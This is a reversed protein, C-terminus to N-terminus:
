RYNVKSNSYIECSKSRKIYEIVRIDKSQNIRKRQTVSVILGFTVVYMMDLIHEYILINMFVVGKRGNEDCCYIEVHFILDCAVYFNIENISSQSLM